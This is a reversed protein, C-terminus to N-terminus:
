KFYERHEIVTGIIAVENANSARIIGWDPNLAILEYSKNKSTSQDSERYKRVINESTSAIHALVFDGPQPKLDPDVVIIDEAFFRPNMSNGAVITAFVNESITEKLKYELSIKAHSETFPTLNENHKKLTKKNCDISSLPIVPIVRPLFEEQLVIEGRVDSSLCLLYSAAVNLAKSLIMAETPGPSRSGNEWNGIRAATLLSGTKESLAKISLGLNKRSLTIREGIRHKIDM